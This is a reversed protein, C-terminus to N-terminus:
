SVLDISISTSEAAIINKDFENCSLNTNSDNVKDTKDNRIKSVSEELNLGKVIVKFLDGIENLDKYKDLRRKLVIEKAESFKIDSLTKVKNIEKQFLFCPCSLDSAKHNGKCNACNIKNPCSFSSNHNQGCVVCRPESKCFSNIHGFRQCRFCRKVLPIFKFVKRSVNNIQIKDPLASSFGIKVSGTSELSNSTEGAIRRKIIFISINSNLTHRDTIDEKVDDETFTKPIDRIIGAIQTNADPIYACWNSNITSIKDQEIFENAESYSTNLFLPIQIERARAGM